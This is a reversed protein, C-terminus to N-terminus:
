YFKFAPFMLLRKNETSQKTMETKNQAAFIAYFAPWIQDNQPRPRRAM